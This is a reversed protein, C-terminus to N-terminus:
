RRGKFVGELTLLTTKMRVGDPCSFGGLGGDKRIVRHCPIFLPLPNQSLAAGVARSAKPKGIGLAIKGYTKVEGYPIMKTLAYVQEQFSSFGSRDLPLDFAVKKGKFYNKVMKQAEILLNSREHTPFSIISIVLEKSHLPLIFRKLEKEGAVLGCWGFAAPFVSRYINM